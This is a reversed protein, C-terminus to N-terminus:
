KASREKLLVFLQRFRLRCIDLVDCVVQKGGEVAGNGPTKNFHPRALPPNIVFPKPHAAEGSIPLTCSTLADARVHRPDARLTYDAGARIHNPQPHQKTRPAFFVKIRGNEM